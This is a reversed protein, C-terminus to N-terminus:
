VIDREKKRKKKQPPPPLPIDRSMDVNQLVIKTRPDSSSVDMLCPEIVSKQKSQSTSWDHMLVLNDNM